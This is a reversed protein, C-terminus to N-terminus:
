KSALQTLPLRSAFDYQPLRNTISLQTTILKTPLDWNSGENDIEEARFLMENDLNITFNM